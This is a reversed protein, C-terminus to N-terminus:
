HEDEILGAVKFEFNRLTFLKFLQEKIFALCQIISFHFILYFTTYRADYIPLNVHKHDIFHSQNNCSCKENAIRM